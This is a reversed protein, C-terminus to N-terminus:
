KKKKLPIRWMFYYDFATSNERKTNGFGPVDFTELLGEGNIKRLLQWRMTFGMFLNSVVKGRLNFNIEVWRANLSPNEYTYTASGFGQDGTYDLRDNFGARAYRLGLSLMNGSEKDKVFNWDGGFRFYAGSNEYLYGNGRSHEEVGLDLNIVFQHMSIAAQIEHTLVGTGFAARGSRIANFGIKVEHPTWDPKPLLSVEDGQSNEEARQGPPETPQQASVSWLTM